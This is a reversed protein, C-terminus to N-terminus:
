TFGALVYARVLEKAREMAEKEPLDQWTLPGLHDGGCFLNEQPFAEEEAIGAVFERFLAPTMGTYGGYQNVQNATAEVLVVTDSEKARRMAARIVYENASCSDCQEYKIHDYEDYDDYEYYWSCSSCYCGNIGCTGYTTAPYESLDMADVNRGHWNASYVAALADPGNVYVFIDGEGMGEFTTDTFEPDQAHYLALEELKACDKFTDNGFSFAYAPIEAYILNVCGSFWYAISPLILRADAHFYVETIQDRVDAWPQEDASAFPKVLGSGGIWLTGNDLEWTMRGGTPDEILNAHLIEQQTTTQSPQTVPTETVAATQGPETVTTEDLDQTETEPKDLSVIGTPEESVGTDISQIGSSEVEEIAMESIGHEHTHEEEVIGAASAFSALMCLVLMLSLIRYLKKM